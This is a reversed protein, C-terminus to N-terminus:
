LKTNVQAIFQFSCTTSQKVFVFAPAWRAELQPGGDGCVLSNANTEGRYTNRNMEICLVQTVKLTKTQNLAASGCTSIFKAKVMSGFEAFCRQVLHFAGAALLSASVGGLAVQVIRVSYYM